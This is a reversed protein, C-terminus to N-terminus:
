QLIVGAWEKISLCNNRADATYVKGGHIVEKGPCVNHMQRVVDNEADTKAKNASQLLVGAATVEDARKACLANAENLREIANKVKEHSNM